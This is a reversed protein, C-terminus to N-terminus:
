IEEEIIRLMKIYDEAPKCKPAYDYLSQQLTQAEQLSIARRIKGMYLVNNAKLQDKISNELNQALVSRGDYMTIVAGVRKFGKNTKKFQEVTELVSYVAKLSHIDTNLPVIVANCAQLANYQLVSIGPATDIFVLDYKKKVEELGEQLLYASGKATKLTPLDWSAAIVDINQATEQITNRINEGNMLAFVGRKDEDAGLCFTLNRQSDFDIALVRKGAAAAAQALTATTTTKGVGGKQTTIAIVKM